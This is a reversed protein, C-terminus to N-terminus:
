VRRWEQFTMALANREDAEHRRAEVLRWEDPDWEPFFTDGEVTAHVLTLHMRECRPLAQRYVEEGGLIYLDSEGAREIAEDLSHVVEVGEHSWGARRTLVLNRRKPLPRGGLSEFTRRGMVVCGGTTVRKFHALDAPLHWPLDGEKGIVHNESLAAVIILM